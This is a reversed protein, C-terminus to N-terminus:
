LMGVLCQNILSHYINLKGVCPILCVEMLNSRFWWMTKLSANRQLCLDLEDVYRSHEYMIAGRKLFRSFATARAGKPVSSRDDGARKPFAVSARLWNLRLGQVGAWVVTFITLCM